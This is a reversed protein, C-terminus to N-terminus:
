ATDAFVESAKADNRLKWGGAQVEGDLQGEFWSAFGYYENIIYKKKKKYKKLASKPGDHWYVGEIVKRSGPLDPINHLIIVESNIVDYGNLGVPGGIKLGMHEKNIIVGKVSEGRKFEYMLVKSRSFIGGDFADSHEIHELM